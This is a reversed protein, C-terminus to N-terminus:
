KKQWNQIETINRYKDLYSCKCTDLNIKFYDIIEDRRLIADKLYDTRDSYSSDSLINNSRCLINLTSDNVLDLGEDTSYIIPRSHGFSSLVNEIYVDFLIKNGELAMLHGGSLNGKTVKNRISKNFQISIYARTNDLISLNLDKLNVFSYCKFDNENFIITITKNKDQIVFRINNKITFSDLLLFLLLLFIFRKM